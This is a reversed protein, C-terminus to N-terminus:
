SGRYTSYGWPSLLLPVHYHADQGITFRVPITQYFSADGTSNFYAGAHFELEFLGMSLDGGFPAQIRGQENTAGRAIEDRGSERIRYLVVELNQAPKGRSVDLVHSSLTM